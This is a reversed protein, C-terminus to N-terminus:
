LQSLSQQGIFQDAALKVQTMTQAAFIATSARQTKAVVFASECYFASFYNDLQPNSVHEVSYVLGATIFLSSFITSAIKAVQM